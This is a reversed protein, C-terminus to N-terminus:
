RSEGTSVAAMETVNAAFQELIRRALHTGGSRLFPALAGTMEVTASVDVATADASGAETLAFSTTAVARSRGKGDAGRARLHGRFTTDDFEPVVVGRFGVNTPGLRVAMVGELSGDDAQGTIQAGPLCTVIREPETMLRWLRDRGVPVEFREELDIRSTAM